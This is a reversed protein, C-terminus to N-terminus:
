KFKRKVFWIDSLSLNISLIGYTERLLNQDLTGRRGFEGSINVSTNTNRLPLGLGFSL